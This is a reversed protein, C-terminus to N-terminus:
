FLQLSYRYFSYVSKKFLINRYALKLTFARNDGTETNCITM